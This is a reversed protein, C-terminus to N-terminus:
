ISWTYIVSWDGKQFSEQDPVFNTFHNSIEWKLRLISRCLQCPLICGTFISKYAKTLMNTQIWPESTQWTEYYRNASLFQPVPGKHVAKHACKQQVVHKKRVVRILKPMGSTSCRIEIGAPSKNFFRRRWLAEDADRALNKAKNENM